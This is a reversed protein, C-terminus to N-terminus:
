HTKRGAALAEAAKAVRAVRTEPKKPEEVWRAWEKRQSPSLSDLFERAGPREALAAALDDPVVTERPADDVELDVEVEEGASLGSAARHEASLPLLSRGGMVGVTTRYTYGAVTVRVAPRRGAGLAQVVDDPVAMGTATRGHLELTM